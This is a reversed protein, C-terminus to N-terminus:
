SKWFLCERTVPIILLHRIVFTWHRLFSLVRILLRARGARKDNTM